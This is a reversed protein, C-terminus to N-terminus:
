EIMEDRRLSGMAGHRVMALPDNETDRAFDVVVVLVGAEAVRGSVSSM